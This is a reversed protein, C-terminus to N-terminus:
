ILAIQSICTYLNYEPYKYLMFTSNRNGAGSVSPKVPNLGPGSEGGLYFRIPEVFMEIGGSFLDQFVAMM